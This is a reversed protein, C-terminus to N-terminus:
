QSMVPECILSVKKRREKGPQNPNLRCSYLSRAGSPPVVNEMQQQAQRNQPQRAAAANFCIVVGIIAAIVHLRAM